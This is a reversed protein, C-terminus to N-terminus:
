GPGSCRDFAAQQRDPDAFRPRRDPLMRFMDERAVGNASAWEERARQYRRRALSLVVVSIGEQLPPVEAPSLWTEIVPGAALEAPM